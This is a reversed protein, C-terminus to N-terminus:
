GIATASFSHGITSLTARNHENPNSTHNESKPAILTLSMGRNFISSAFDPVRAVAKM